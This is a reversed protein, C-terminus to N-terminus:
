KVKTGPLLFACLNISLSVEETRVYCNVLIILIVSSSISLRILLYVIM